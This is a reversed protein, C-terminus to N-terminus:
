VGSAWPGAAKRIADGPLGGPMRGRDFGPCPGCPFLDRPQELTCLGSATLQLRAVQARHHGGEAFLRQAARALEEDRTRDGPLELHSVMTEADLWTVTLGLRACALQRQRLTFGIERALAILAERTADPGAGGTASSWKASVSPEPDALEPV